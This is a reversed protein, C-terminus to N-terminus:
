QHEIDTATPEPIKSDKRDKREQPSFRLSLTIWGGVLLVMSAAVLMVGGIDLWCDFEHCIKSDLAILMLASFFSLLFQLCALRKETKPSLEMCMTLSLIYTVLISLSLILPGAKRGYNWKGDFIEMQDSTWGVCSYRGDGFNGNLEDMTQFFGVSTGRINKWEHTIEVFNCQFVAYGLFINACISFTIHFLVQRGYPFTFSCM